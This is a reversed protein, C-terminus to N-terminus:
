LVPDILEVTESSPYDRSDKIYKVCRPLNKLMILTTKFKMGFIHCHQTHTDTRQMM